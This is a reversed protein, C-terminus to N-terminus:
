RGIQCARRSLRRRGSREHTILGHDWVPPIDPTWRNLYESRHGYRNGHMGGAPLADLRDAAASIADVQSFEPRASLIQVRSQNSGAVVQGGTLLQYRMEAPRWRNTSTPRGRM